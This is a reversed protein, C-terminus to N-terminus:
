ATLESLKDIEVVARKLHESIVLLRGRVNCAPRKGDEYGCLEADSILHRLNNVATELHEPVYKGFRTQEVFPELAHLIEATVGESNRKRELAAAIEPRLIARTSRYGDEDTTEEHYHESGRRLEDEFNWGQRDCYHMLDALLDSVADEHDTRTVRMFANLATDAWEARDDNQGDPDPPLEPQGSAKEHQIPKSM